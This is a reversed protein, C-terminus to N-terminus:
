FSEEALPPLSTYMSEEGKAERRGCLVLQMDRTLKCFDDADGVM